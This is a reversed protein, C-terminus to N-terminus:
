RLTTFQACSVSYDYDLVWERKVREVVEHDGCRITAARTIHRQKMNLASYLIAERHYSGPTAIPV